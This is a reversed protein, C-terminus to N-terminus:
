VNQHSFALILILKGEVKEKKACLGWTWYYRESWVQALDQLNMHIHKMKIQYAIYNHGGEKVSQTLM